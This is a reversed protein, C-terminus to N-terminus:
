EEFSLDSAAPRSKGAVGRVATGTQVTTGGQFIRAAKKPSAQQFTCTTPMDDEVESATKGWCVYHPLPRENSSGKNLLYPEKTWVYLQPFISKSFDVSDPCQLSYLYDAGHAGRLFSGAKEFSLRFSPGHAKEKPMIWM